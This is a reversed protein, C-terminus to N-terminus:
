DCKRLEILLNSLEIIGDEPIGNREIEEIDFTKLYEEDSKQRM